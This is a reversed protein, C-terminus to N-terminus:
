ELAVGLVHLPTLGDDPRVAFQYFFSLPLGSGWLTRFYLAAGVTRHEATGAPLGNGADTWTHAWEAFLQLDAERIFFSPLLWLFSSWGYDVIIPAQYRLGAIIVQNCRLTADEYGRLPERFTIDPFLTLGSGAQSKDPQSDWELFGLSSGGVRLLRGPAGALARGRVTLQLTHRAWLPLPTYFAATARLDAFTFDSGFAKAFLQASGTVSIGRRVGAYPTSETASWASAIGPGLLDSNRKSGDQFGEARHIGFFGLSVPTTWFTRSASLGGSMDVVSPIYSDDSVDRLAPEASRAFAAQLYVPALQYNGYGVSFTPGPDSTQYGVNIAYQHLGLRDSGQLSVGGYVTSQTGNYQQRSGFAVFPGRLTPVLLHDLAHYPDDSLVPVDPEASPEESAAVQAADPPPLPRGPGADIWDLTWGWGERNVFALRGGPLPAPDLVVFPADSVVTIAGTAVEIRVAQTRGDVEHVAIVHDPGDWRPSYNFKGDRTLARESGDPARLWLDFDDGIKRAFVIRGDAAPAPAGLTLRGQNHTLPRQAGTALDLEWLDGTDANSRVFVYRTGAPDVSGGLSDPTEWTRLLRGDRADLEVLKPATDGDIGVDALIFYLRQARGDFSLGSVSLPSTAIYARGPLFLTLASRFRLSGDPNRIRLESRSDLGATITALTGDPASALRAFYGLDSDLVKQSEPRTRWPGSHRLSDRWEDVLEGAGKGYVWMFRFSVGLVPIWSRGQVDILAWLKEAGYRRALWEIFHMGALYNGGFPLLERQSPSLDGSHIEGQRLAVGSEFLGRWIPSHPRGTNRELRGEYYTALGELFYSETFINPDLLDGFALNLYYWLEDVEQFQVYHTAEHCSVDDVHNSGIELLNFYETTFHHALVMQIPLGGIQAQVYANDFNATTLYALVKPRETGSFRNARLKEVCRDLRQVLRFAEDRKSEPYYLEVRATELKRMPQRAFSTTVPQSFRPGLTACGSATVLLAGLVVLRRGGDM